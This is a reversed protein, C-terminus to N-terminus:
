SPAPKFQEMISKVTLQRKTISVEFQRKLDTEALRCNKVKARQFPCKIGTMVSNWRYIWTAQLITPGTVIQSSVFSVSAHVPM